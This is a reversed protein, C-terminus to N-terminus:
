KGIWHHRGCISNTRKFNNHELAAELEKLDSISRMNKTDEDDSSDPPTSIARSEPLFIDLDSGVDNPVKFEYVKHTPIERGLPAVMSLPLDNHLMATSRSKKAAPKHVNLDPKRRKLTRTRLDFTFGDNSSVGTNISM